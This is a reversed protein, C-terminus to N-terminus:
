RYKIIRAMRMKYAKHHIKSLKFDQEREYAKFENWLEKNLSLLLSCNIGADILEKFTHM